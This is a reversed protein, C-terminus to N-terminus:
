QVSLLEFTQPRYGASKVIDKSIYKTLKRTRRELQPSVFPRELSHLQIYRRLMASSLVDKFSHMKLGSSSGGRPFETLVRIDRGEMDNQFLFWTGVLITGILTYIVTLSWWRVEVTMEINISDQFIRNHHDVTRSWSLCQDVVSPDFVLVEAQPLIAEYRPSM